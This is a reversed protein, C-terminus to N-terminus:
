VKTQHKAEGFNHKLYEELAVINKIFCYKVTIYKCRPRKVPHKTLAIMDQKVKTNM